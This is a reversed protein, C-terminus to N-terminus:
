FKYVTPTLFIIKVKESIEKLEESILKNRTESEKSFDYELNDDSYNIGDYANYGDMGAISVEKIGLKALLKLLM